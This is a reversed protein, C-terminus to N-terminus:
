EFGDRIYLPAQVFFFVDARKVDNEDVELIPNADNFKCWTYTPEGAVFEEEAKDKKLFAYFHGDNVVGGTHRIAGTMKFRAFTGSTNTLRVDGGLEFSQNNVFTRRGQGRHGEVGLKVVLGMPLTVLNNKTECQVIGDCTEMRCDIEEVSFNNNFYEEIMDQISSNPDPGKIEIVAMVDSAESETELIDCISCSSTKVTTQVIPRIFEFFRELTQNNSFRTFIETAFGTQELISMDNDFAERILSTLMPIPTDLINENTSYYQWIFDVFTQDDQIDMQDDPFQYEYHGPLNRMMWLLNVISSNFWCTRGNQNSYRVILPPNRAITDNRSTFYAARSHQRNVPQRNVPQKNKAKTPPKFTKKAKPVFPSPKKSPPQQSSTPQQPSQSPKKFPPQFTRKRSQFPLSEDPSPGGQSRLNYNANKQQAERHNKPMPGKRGPYYFFPSSIRRKGDITATSNTSSNQPEEPIRGPNTTSDHSDNTTNNHDSLHLTLDIKSTNQRGGMREPTSTGISNQDVDDDSTEEPIELFDMDQDEEENEDDDDDDDDNDDHGHDLKKSKHVKDGSEDIFHPAPQLHMANRTDGLCVDVIPGLVHFNRCMCMLLVALTHSASMLRRNCSDERGDNASCRWGMLYRLNGIFGLEEGISADNSFMLMTNYYNGKGLLSKHGSPILCYALLVGEEPWRGYLEVNELYEEGPDAVHRLHIQFNQPFQSAQDIYDSYDEFNGAKRDAELEVRRCLTVINWAERLKYLGGCLTLLVGMDESNLERIGFPFLDFADDRSLNEITTCFWDNDEPTPCKAIDVSFDICSLPNPRNINRRINEFIIEQGEADTFSLKFLPHNASYLGCCASYILIPRPVNALKPNLSYKKCLRQGLPRLSKHSLTNSIIKYQHIAGHFDQLNM